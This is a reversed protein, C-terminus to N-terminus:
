VPLPAPKLDLPNGLQAAIADVSWDRGAALHRAEAVASAIATQRLQLSIDMPQANIFVLDTIGVFGFAARLYHEVFDYAHYPSNESYDAGRSTICVMKKGEVLGIARGVEDYKFLYGPQFIADIYFKLSYPISFNWMPTSIVYIDASLFHAIQDEIHKWSEQHLKDLPRRMMLTYKAEINAGAVAPLERDFLNFEEVKLDPYRAHMSELFAQSVRLTNSHDERPTAVIHLLKLKNKDKRVLQCRNIRRKSEVCGGSAQTM